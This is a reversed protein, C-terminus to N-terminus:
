KKMLEKLKKIEEISLDKLINEFEKINKELKIRENYEDETEYKYVSVSYYPDDNKTNKDISTVYLDNNFYPKLMKSLLKVKDNIDSIFDKFVRKLDDESKIYCDSLFYEPDIEIIESDISFQKRRQFYFNNKIKMSKKPKM